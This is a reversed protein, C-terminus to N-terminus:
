IFLFHMDLTSICFSSTCVSHQGYKKAPQQRCSILICLCAQVDFFVQGAPLGYKFFHICKGAYKKLPKIYVCAQVRKEERIMKGAGKRRGAAPMKGGNRQAKRRGKEEQHKQSQKAVMERGSQRCVYISKQVKELRKCGMKQVEKEEYMISFATWRHFTNQFFLRAFNLLLPIYMGRYESYVIFVEHM